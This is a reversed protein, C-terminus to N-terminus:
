LASDHSLVDIMENIWTIGSRTCGEQTSNYGLIANMENSIVIYEMNLYQKLVRYVLSM